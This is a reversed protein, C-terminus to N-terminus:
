ILGEKVFEEIKKLANCELYGNSYIYNKLEKKKYLQEIGKGLILKGYKWEKVTDTGFEQRLYNSITKLISDDDNTKNKKEIEINIVSVNFSKSELKIPFSVNDVDMEYIINNRPDNTKIINIIKRYNVRMHIERFGIQHLTNIPNKDFYKEIEKKKDIEIIEKLQNIILGFAEKSWKYENELRRIGHFEYNPPGKITVLDEDEKKRIRLVFEKKKLSNSITDFYTDIIKEDSNYNLKFDNINQISKIKDLILQLNNSCIILSIENETSM